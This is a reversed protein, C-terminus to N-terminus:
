ITINTLIPDSYVGGSCNPCIQTLEIEWNGSAPLTFTKPLQDYNPYPTVYTFLSLSGYPRYGIRLQSGSKIATEGTSVDPM